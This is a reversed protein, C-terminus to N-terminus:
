APFSMFQAQNVAAPTHHSEKGEKKVGKSPACWISTCREETLRIPVKFLLFFIFIEKRTNNQSYKSSCPLSTGGHCCKFNSQMQTALLRSLSISVVDGARWLTRHSAMIGLTQVSSSLGPMKINAQKRQQGKARKKIKWKKKVLLPM